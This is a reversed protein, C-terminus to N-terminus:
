RQLRGIGRGFEVVGGVLMAIAVFAIRGVSLGLALMAIGLVVLFAGILIEKRATSLSLQRELKVVGPGSSAAVICRRCIAGDATVDTEAAAVVAQCRVCTVQSM